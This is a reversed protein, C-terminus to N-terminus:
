YELSEDVDDELALEEDDDGGGDYGDDRLAGLVEMEHQMEEEAEFDADTLATSAGITFVRGMNTVALGHYGGAAISTVKELERLPLPVRGPTLLVPQDLARACQQLQNDGWSWVHGDATLALTHMEGAALQTVEGLVWGEAGGETGVACTNSREPARRGLQGHSHDGYTCVSGDALLVASHYTGGAIAAGAHM